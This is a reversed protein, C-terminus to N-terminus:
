RFALSDNAFDDQRDWPYFCRGIRFAVQLLFERSFQHEQKDSTPVATNPPYVMENPIKEWVVKSEGETLDYVTIQVNARGQYLTQGALLRFSELDILLLKDAQLSQAIEVPDSAGVQDIQDHVDENAIVEIKRVKEALLRGIQKSLERAALTVTHTQGPAARCIVAVRQKQLGEYEAPVPNGRIVWLLGAIQAACGAQLVVALSVMVLGARLWFAPWRNSAAQPSRLQCLCGVPPTPMSM